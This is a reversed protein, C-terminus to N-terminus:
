QNVNLRGTSCSPSPVVLRDSLESSGIKVEAVLTAIRVCDAAPVELSFLRSGGTLVYWGGIEREFVADGTAGLGRVRISSVLFHVNGSNQVRLSAAGERLAIDRLAGETVITSPRVFVPISLRTLVTLSAAATEGIAASPLEEAIIRYTLEANSAKRATGIRVGRESMPPITLLPPYLIIDTTPSLTTRGDPAEDWQFVGVQFRLPETGTNRLTMVRTSQAPTLAVSTPNVGFSSSATSGIRGILLVLGVAVM